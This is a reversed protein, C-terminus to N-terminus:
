RFRPSHHTVPQNAQQGAYEEARQRRLRRFGEHQAIPEVTGPPILTDGERQRRRLEFGRLRSLCQHTRIARRHQILDGGIARSLLRGDDKEGVEVWELRAGVGEGVFGLLHLAIESNLLARFADDKAVPQGADGNIRLQVAADPRNGAHFEVGAGPRAAGRQFGIRRDRFVLRADSNAARDIRFHDTFRGEGIARGPQQARLDDGMFRDHENVFDGRHLPFRRKDQVQIATESRRFDEKAIALLHGVAREPFVLRYVDAGSANERHLRPQAPRLIDVLPIGEAQIFRPASVQQRHPRAFGAGPHIRFELPVVLHRVAREHRLAVGANGHRHAQFCSLALPHHHRQVAIGAQLINVLKVPILRRQGVLHEDLM